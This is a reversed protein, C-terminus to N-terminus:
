YRRASHWPGLAKSFTYSFQGGLGHSPRMTVHSQLSHYTSYGFQDILNVTGYQPSVVIFNQPLGANLLLGGPKGNNPAPALTQNTNILNAFGGVNGNAIFANTTTSRRLAQAATLGGVGVTGVTGGFNVGKFIQEMLPVNDQGARVANFAALLGNEQVNVDNIQHNNQLHVAHNGVWGIDFTM